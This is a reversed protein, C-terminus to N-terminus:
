VAYRVVGIVVALEMASMFEVAERKWIKDRHVDSSCHRSVTSCDGRSPGM